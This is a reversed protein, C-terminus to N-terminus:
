NIFIAGDRNVARKVVAWAATMHTGTVAPRFCCLDMIEMAFIMEGYQGRYLSANWIGSYIAVRGIRKQCKQAQPRRIV